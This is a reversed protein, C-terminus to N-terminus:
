LTPLSFSFTAGIGDVNNNGWIKGGHAEIISKSIFLGLGTGQFSKSAFKSFLRPLIEPHIGSGTDKVSVTVWNRNNENAKDEEVSITITGKQTFKIANSLLNSIVEAITSKDAQLLIDRPEYFLQLNKSNIAKGVLIDDIAHLIIDNLNFKEKKLEFTNSEIKTVDLIEDTLRNLRKANRIVVDLLEQQGSDKIKSRLIYILSLIPQMPTRLEHAAVNIFEQQMRDHVKLQENALLLQNNAIQLDETRKKVEAQLSRQISLHRKRMGRNIVFLSVGTIGAAVLAAIIITQILIQAYAESQETASSMISNLQNQIDLATARIKTSNSLIMPLALNMGNIKHSQRLTIAQNLEALKAEILGNLLNLENLRQQNASEDAMLM